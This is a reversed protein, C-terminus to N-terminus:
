RDSLGGPVSRCALALLLLLGAAATALSTGGGTAPLAGRVAAVSGSSGAGGASGVGDVPAGIRTISVDRVQWYGGVAEAVRAAPSFQEETHSPGLPVTFRLRGADDAFVSMPDIGGLGGVSYTGGPAYRAATTLEASGSGQVTLGDARVNTLDVFERVDRKVSVDYGWVSFRDAVTRYRFSAPLPTSAGLTPTPDALRALLFPLHRERLWPTWWRWAHSGETERYELAGVHAVAHLKDVFTRNATLFAADVALTACLDVTVDSSCSSAIDITLDVGDLNAALEEPLHGPHYAPGDVQSGMKFGYAGMNSSMAGAAVFLDPRRAAFHMSGYGGNSLGTIARGSRDAITRLRGDIYPVVFDLVYREILWRGDYSDYWQGSRGDPMVAIVADAPNAAVRADLMAQIDGNTVWNGQDGGGGHLVYLVPYRLSSTDYGPPLYVCLGSTFALSGDSRRPGDPLLRTIMSGAPSRVDACAEIPPRHKADAFHDRGQAGCGDAEETTATTCGPPNDQAPDLEEGAAAAGSSVVGLAVGGALALTGLARRITRTRRGGAM